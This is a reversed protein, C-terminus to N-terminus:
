RMGKAGVLSRRHASEINLRRARRAYRGQSAALKFLFAAQASRAIRAAVAQGLTQNAM